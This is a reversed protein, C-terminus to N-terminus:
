YVSEFHRNRERVVDSLKLYVGTELLSGCVTISSIEIQNDKWGYNGSIQQFRGCKDKVHATCDDVKTWLLPKVHMCMCLLYMCRGLGCVCVCVKLMIDLM